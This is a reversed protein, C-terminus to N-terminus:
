ETSTCFEIGTDVRLCFDECLREIKNTKSQTFKETETDISPGPKTCARLALHAVHTHAV